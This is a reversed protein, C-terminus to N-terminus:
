FLSKGPYILGCCLKIRYLLLVTHTHSKKISADRFFWHLYHFRKKWRHRLETHARYSMINGISFPQYCYERAIKPDRFIIVVFAKGSNTCIFCASIKCWSDIGDYIQHFIIKRFLLYELLGWLYKIKLVWKM